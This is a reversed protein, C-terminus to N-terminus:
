RCSELGAMSSIVMLGPGLFLAVAAADLDGGVGFGEAL